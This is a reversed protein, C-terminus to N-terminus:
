TFDSKNKELDVKEFFVRRNAASFVHDRPSRLSLKGIAHGEPDSASHQRNPIINKNKDLVDNKECQSVYKVNSLKKMDGRLTPLLILRHAGRPSRAAECM